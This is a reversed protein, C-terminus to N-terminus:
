GLIIGAGKYITVAGAWVVFWGLLALMLFWLLDLAGPGAKRKGHTRAHRIVKM